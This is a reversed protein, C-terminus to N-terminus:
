LKYFQPETETIHKNMVQLIADKSANLWNNDAMFSVMDEFLCVMTGEDDYTDYTSELEAIIGEVPDTQSVKELIMSVFLERTLVVESIEQVSISATENYLDLFEWHTEFEIGMSMFLPSIEMWDTFITKKRDKSLVDFNDLADKRLEYNIKELETPPAVQM